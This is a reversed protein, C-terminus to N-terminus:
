HPALPCVLPPPSHREGQWKAANDYKDAPVRPPAATCFGDTSGLTLRLAMDGLPAADLEYLGAGKGVVTLRGNKLTVKKIPGDVRDADLYKYGPKAASGTRVWRAAPLPIVV